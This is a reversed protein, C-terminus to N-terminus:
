KESNFGASFDDETTDDDDKQVVNKKTTLSEKLVDDQEKKKESAESGKKAKGSKAVHEKYADLVAIGDEPDRSSDMRQVLKSQAKLWNDYGESQIIKVADPHQAQINSWFTAQGIDQRVQNLEKRLQDASQKALAKAIIIAQQTVEPYQASFTKLLIKEKGTDIEAGALDPSELIQKIEVSLEPLEEKKADHTTVDKEDEKKDKDREPKADKEETAGPNLENEAAQVARKELRQQATLEAVPDPDPEKVQTEAPEGTEGEDGAAGAGDTKSKGDGGETASDKSAKDAGETDKESKDETVDKKEEPKGQQKDATEEKAEPTSFASSFDLEGDDPKQETAQDDIEM